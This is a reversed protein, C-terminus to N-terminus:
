GVAVNRHDTQASAAAPSPRVPIDSRHATRLSHPRTQEPPWRGAPHPLASSKGPELDQLHPPQSPIVMVKRRPPAALGRAVPQGARSRRGSRASTIRSCCRNRDSRRNGALRDTVLPRPKPRSLPGPSSRSQAIAGLPTTCRASWNRSRYARIPSRTGVSPM